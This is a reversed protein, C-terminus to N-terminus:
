IDLIKQYLLLAAERDIPVPNNKLRVPNVSRALVELGDTRAQAPPTIELSKLLREILRVAPAAGSAGLAAAIDSFVRGLYDPGRPDACQELNELMYEWVRPLCLAAAHGHPLGYISTLKYSMAHAATTQAINIARGALNAATLMARNGAKTNDLHDEMHGMFLRIAQKSFARSEGTSNVSWWAEIAQCLADLMACKKQYLPLTKLVSPELVVYAPLIADNALSQKEGKYYIVAFRTSESGTGATTPVALLPVDNKVHEQRLYNKATDMGCFLKVCKATDLTSGGGVAVIFDCGNDRFARVGSVVDEYLPNPSFADFLVYPAAARLVEASIELRAFAADCVLLVKKASHAALVRRIEGIDSFFKQM